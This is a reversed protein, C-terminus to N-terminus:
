ITAKHETTTYMPASQFRNATSSRGIMTCFGNTM